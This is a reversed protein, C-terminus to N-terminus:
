NKLCRKHENKHFAREQPQGCSCFNNQGRRGYSHQSTANDDSLCFPEEM